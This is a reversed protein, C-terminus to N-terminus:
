LTNWLLSMEKVNLSKEKVKLSIAKCKFYMEKDKLAVDRVKLSIAKCKFYM